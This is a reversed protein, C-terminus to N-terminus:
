KKQWKGTYRGAPRDENEDKTFFANMIASYARFARFIGYLMFTSGIIVRLPKDINMGEYFFFLFGVGIYFVVMFLSFIATVQQMIKSERM